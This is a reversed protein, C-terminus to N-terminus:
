LGAVRRYMIRSHGRMACPIIFCITWRAPLFNMNRLSTIPASPAMATQERSRCECLASRNLSLGHEVLRDGRHFRILGFREVHEVLSFTSEQVAIEIRKAEVDAIALDKGDGAGICLLKQPRINPVKLVGGALHIAWFEVGRRLLRFALGALDAVHKWPRA